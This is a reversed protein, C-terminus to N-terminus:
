VAAPSSARPAGDIGAGPAASTAAILRDASSDPSAPAKLLQAALQAQKALVGVMDKLKNADAVGAAMQATEALQLFSLSM